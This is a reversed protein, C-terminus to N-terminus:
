PIVFSYAFTNLCPKILRKTYLVLYLKIFHQIIHSRHMSHINVYIKILVFVLYQFERCEFAFASVSPNHPIRDEEHCLTSKKFYSIQSHWSLIRFFSFLM